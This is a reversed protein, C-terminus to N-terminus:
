TISIELLYINYFCINGICNNLMTWVLPRHEIVTTYKLQESRRNVSIKLRDLSVLIPRGILTLIM